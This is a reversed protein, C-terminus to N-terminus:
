APSRQVSRIPLSSARGYLRVLESAAQFWVKSFSLRSRRNDVTEVPIEVVQAGMRTLLVLVETDWLWGTIEVQPLVTHLLHGRFLKLGAQHDTLGTHFIRDVLGNLVRTGLRRHLPRNRSLSPDLMKSAVAVDAGGQLARYLPGIYRADIELDADIFGVVSGRAVKLATSLIRGKGLHDERVVRIGPGVAERARAVTADTSASDGLILEYTVGLRSVEATVRELTGAILDEENHAPIVLSLQM